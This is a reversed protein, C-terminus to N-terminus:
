SDLCLTRLLAGSTYNRGHNNDWNDAGDNVAFEGATGAVLALAVGANAIASAPSSLVVM